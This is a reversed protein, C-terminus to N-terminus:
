RTALHHLAAVLADIDGPTNYFALSPRVAATLGYRALVPQACHHGARVAIGQRDLYKGLEQPETGPIVFALAGVKGPVTGIQRLHPVTALASTAYAMLGAEYAALNPLGLRSVYDCAAGLGIAGAIHATGAEFRAPLASYTTQEFTVTDIMNGGAQWPPMAELLGRKGYLVGIGTPGFLKHGSFAYFDLDLAQVNVPLHPAGQAGDVLVPVGYAHALEVLASLPLVTGLVNSVHAVAVLKTRASLLKAYDDLLVQGQDDLPVVKLVAGTEQCLLQWPVINSHHELQTVIIEDGRGVHARGYSQAVLNIAETTGRTYIIEEPEAAGLLLQVKRRAEEFALSAREALTHAGRHVNSNDHAYFHTLADIVAQPKHTTAANDLWVLPKGNVTQELAPFDQRVAAVDFSAAARPEAAPPSPAPLFYFPTAAQLPSPLGSEAIFRGAFGLL